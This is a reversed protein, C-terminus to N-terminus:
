GKRRGEVWLHRLDQAQAETEAGDSAEFDSEAGAGGFDPNLIQGEGM